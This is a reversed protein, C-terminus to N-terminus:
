RSNGSLGPHHGDVGGKRSGDHRGTSRATQGRAEKSGAPPAARSDGAGLFALFSHTLEATLEEDTPPPLGAVDDFLIVARVSSVTFVFALEVARAPDPHGIQASSALMQEKVKELVYRNHFAARERFGSESQARGRLALATLIGRHRRHNCVLLSVLQAASEELSAARWQDSAFFEDCAARGLEFFREDFCDLLSEKDAFRGYFAGVSTGARQVIEAVSAQDFPKEALLAATADLLRELTARSRAQRPLRGSVPNDPIAM